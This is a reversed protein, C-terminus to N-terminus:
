TAQSAVNNLFAIKNKTLEDYLQDDIKGNDHLEDCVAIFEKVTDILEEKM